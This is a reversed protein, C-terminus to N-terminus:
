SCIDNLENLLANYKAKSLKFFELVKLNNLLDSCVVIGQDILQQKEAKTLQNLVTIPYIKFREIMEKLSNGAPYDWALMKLGSCKAYELSDSSFRTNTVVWGTFTFDKYIPLTVRNKVIDDVRSRVYLPVQVSVQKGQSLSYKCEMLHQVKDGTAIVDMEHTICTGQLVQGVEVKFGQHEFLKGIFHEFPYGTQGFEMMAQKLKYRLAATTKKQRLLTFARVYIKKTTIGPTIWAAIDGVIQRVLESDAGANHLSRELKISDFPESEGSAKTVWLTNTPKVILQNHNNM